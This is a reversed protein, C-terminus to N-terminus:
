KQPIPSISSLLRKLFAFYSTAQARFPRLLEIPAKARTIGRTFLLASCVVCALGTLVLWAGTIYYAAPMSLFRPMDLGLEDTGKRFTPQSLIGDDILSIGAYSVGVALVGAVASALVIQCLVMYFISRPLVGSILILGYQGRRHSFITAVILWTMSLYLVVAAGGLPAAIENIITKLMGVRIIMGEYTTPLRFIKDGGQDFNLVADVIKEFTKREAAPTRSRGFLEGVWEGASSAHHWVLDLPSRSPIWVIVQDFSRIKSTEIVKNKDVTAERQISTEDPRSFSDSMPGWQLRLSQRQHLPLHKESCEDWIEKPIAPAFEIEVQRIGNSPPPETGDQVRHIDSSTPPGAKDEPRHTGNSAPLDTKEACRRGAQWIEAADGYALRAGSCRAAARMATILAVDGATDSVVGALRSVPRGGAEAHYRWHLKETGVAELLEFTNLPLIFVVPGPLSFSPVDLLDFKLVTGGVSTGQDHLRLHLKGEAIASYAAPKEPDMSCGSPGFERIEKLRAQASVSDHYMRMNMAILGPFSELDDVQHNKRQLIAKWIPSDLPLAAAVVKSDLNKAARFGPLKVVTNDPSFYRVPTVEVGVLTRLQDIANIDLRAEFNRTFHLPVGSTESAGVLIQEFRTRLDLAVSLALFAIFYCLTLFATLWVFDRAGPVEPRRPLFDKWFEANGVRMCAWHRNNNTRM